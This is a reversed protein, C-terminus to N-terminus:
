SAAELAGLADAVAVRAEPYPHLAEVIVEQVRPAILVNVTPSTDILQRMKAMLELNGRAERIAGLATRLEESEEAAELVALTRSHIARVEGLLDDAEASEVADKAKVLLEPIHEAAHRKLASESVGYRNAIARYSERSVLAVNVAHSEDLDCVTCRRPM